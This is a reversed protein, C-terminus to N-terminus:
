EAEDLLRDAEVEDELRAVELHHSWSLAPRRRSPEFKSAVIRALKITSQPIATRADVLQSVDAEDHVGDAEFQHQAYVLWDGLYWLSSHHATALQEALGAWEDWTLDAPLILAVNTQRHELDTM